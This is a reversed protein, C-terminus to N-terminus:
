SAQAFSIAEVESGLNSQGTVPPHMLTTQVAM